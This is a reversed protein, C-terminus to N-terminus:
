RYHHSAGEVPERKQDENEGQAREEPGRLSWWRLLGCIDATLNAFGAVHSLEVFERFGHHALNEKEIGSVCKFPLGAFVAMTRAAIMHVGASAPTDAPEDSKPLVGFHGNCNLVLRAQTTM